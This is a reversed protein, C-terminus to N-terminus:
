REQWSRQRECRARHRWDDALPSNPEIWRTTGVIETTRCKRRLPGAWAKRGIRRVRAHDRRDPALM